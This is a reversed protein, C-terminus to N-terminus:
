RIASSEHGAEKNRVRDVTKTSLRFRMQTPKFIGRQPNILPICMGEFQFGPALDRATLVDRVETLKKIHAFAALRMAADSDAKIM